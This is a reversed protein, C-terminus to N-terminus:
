KGLLDRFFEKALKQGEVQKAIMEETDTELYKVGPILRKGPLAWEDSVDLRRSQEAGSRVFITQAEKTLLWNIFVKAANPHTPQNSLAVNGHGSNMALGEKPVVWHLPSGMNIFEAVTESQPGLAIPYRGRAVWEIHLRRDSTIVPEQKLLQRAFDMGMMEGVYMSFFYSGAGDVTPDQLVMKGKWKPNLLDIFSQVEEPKVLDTNTIISGAARGAFTTVTHDKDLFHLGGGRWAGPNVVEPLLVQEIKRDLFGPDKFIIISSGGGQFVDPINLGVRREAQVRALLENGRGVLWELEINYNDQFGKTLADNKQTAYIVVKGEKRGEAVWYDWKEKWKEQPRVDPAGKVAPTAVPTSVSAPTSSLTCASVALVLVIIGLGIVWYSIPRKM